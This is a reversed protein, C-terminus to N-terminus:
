EVTFDLTSTKADSSALDITVVVVRYNGAHLGLTRKVAPENATPVEFSGVIKGAATVQGSVYFRDSYGSLPVSLTVKRAASQQVYVSSGPGIAKELEASTLGAAVFVGLDGVTIQGDGSVPVRTEIRHALVQGQMMENENLKIQTKRLWESTPPQQPPQARLDILEAEGAKLDALTRVTTAPVYAIDLVDGRGIVGSAAPQDKGAVIVSVAAGNSAFVKADKQPAGPGSILRYEGNWQADRYVFTLSGRGYAWTLNRGNTNVEDPPGYVIYIRGMDSAWGHKSEAEFHENAYAVRRYHEERFQTGGRRQWFQEIFREREEGSTLQPFAAREEPTILYAADERLWQEYPTQKGRPESTMRFDGKGQPDEFEVKINDGIGELHRYSWVITRTHNEVTDPPGYTIYIRGRDTKWGPIASGFHESAYAMRRYHEERFPTGRHEWFRDIFRDREEDTTLGRFANREENTIIYVVDVNLWTQYRTRASEQAAIALPVPTPRVARQKAPVAAVAAAFIVLLLGASIAPAASVPATGSEATLRRIRKMLNGGSAALAPALARRQELTALTAAYARADGMLEVVRDDCCHERETRVVRSVWWVAPHYFLLGEVVSQLLNVLYDHRAVPALEHLLICEVQATSLGTLCGLPRLYGVLLPTDTLCSELLVVPRSIRLRAALKDLRRQWEPPPACVGRRRLRQVAAWGALGRAFFFVVGAFWAPVLWPLLASWSFRPPPVALPSTSAPIAIWHIPATVAVPRRMWIVAFSAAFATAMAALIVCAVAYRRRAPAARLLRLMALLVAALLAGEWLFHALTRGLAQALPTHIWYALQSM